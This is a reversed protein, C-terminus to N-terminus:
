AVESHRHDIIAVVATKKHTVRSVLRAEETDAFEIAAGYNAFWREDLCRGPSGDANVAFTKTQYRM